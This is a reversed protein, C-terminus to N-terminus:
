PIQFIIEVGLFYSTSLFIPPVKKARRHTRGWGRADARGREAGFDIKDM